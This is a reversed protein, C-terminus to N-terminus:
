DKVKDEKKANEDDEEAISLKRQLSGVLEKDDSSACFSSMLIIKIMHTAM